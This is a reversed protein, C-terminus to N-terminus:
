GRVAAEALALCESPTREPHHEHELLWARILPVPEDGLLRLLELALADVIARHEAAEIIAPSEHAQGSQGTADRKAHAAGGEVAHVGARGGVAPGGPQREAALLRETADESRRQANRWGRGMSLEQVDLHPGELVTLKAQHPSWKREGAQVWEGRAWAVLITERLEQENLNFRCFSHPFQRLEVHYM